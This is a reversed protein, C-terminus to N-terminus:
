KIRRAPVGTYTGADVCSKTVVAGSGIITGPAIALRALPTGQNIIAGAGIWCCDGLDVNGSVCAGPALHVFSGIKVDHAVCANQNVIVFDGVDIGSTLRAGACVIIGVRGEMSERQRRGFTATSHILNRFRVANRLRSAVLRRVSGDGIGIVFQMDAYRTIDSEVIVEDPYQWSALEEPDRAVYIPEIGLSWAVDGAERAMGSTGIIGVTRM